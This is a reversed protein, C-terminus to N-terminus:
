KARVKTTDGLVLSDQRNVGFEEISFIVVKPKILVVRMRGLVTGLTVRYTTSTAVDTMVAIPRTPHYLIGALRLDGVTPRLEGTGMLSNFPDRRGASTYDFQERLIEVPKPPAAEPAVNLGPRRQGTPPAGAKTDQQTPGPAAAKTDQRTVPATKADQKAASPTAKSDQKTVPTKAAPPPTKTSQASAVAAVFLLPIFLVRM